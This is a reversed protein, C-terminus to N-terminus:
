RTTSTAGASSAASPRRGEGGPLRGEVALPSLCGFHLYPSLRSTRDAGLADHTSTYEHVRGDLFVDLRRRGEREGGRM